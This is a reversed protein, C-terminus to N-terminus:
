RASAALPRVRELLLRLFEDSKTAMVNHGADPILVLAKEAATISAVYTQVPHVPTVRDLAGQFVFFPVDFDTGLTTLDTAEVAERFHDQSNTLGHRYDRLDQWGMDSEFLVLSLLKWRSPLGPEYANAWRTHVTARAISDYPPAGNAELEEIARRDNKSRADALLEAYALARYKRQNVSQGTGVYAYFLDPRAKAMRVGMNSGWSIGVLVVKPKHLKRRLFEVVELGDLAMRTITVSPELPGSRGFTRGAGRQDWHALTFHGTWSFLFDRPMPSLAFGPGGHLILLVPNDRDQGRIRIWQDLGGIRTFVAEDIGRVPDIATAKALERHRYIRYSLGGGIAALILVLFSGLVRKAIKWIRRGVCDAGVREYAGRSPFTGSAHRDGDSVSSGPTKLNSWARSEPGYKPM